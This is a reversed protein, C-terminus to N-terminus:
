QQTELSPEPGVEIGDDYDEDEQNPVDVKEFSVVNEREQIGDDYIKISYQSFDATVGLGDAM